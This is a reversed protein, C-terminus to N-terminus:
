EAGRVKIVFKRISVEPAPTLLSFTKYNTKQYCENPPVGAVPVPVSNWQSALPLNSGTFQVDQIRVTCLRGVVLAHFAMM